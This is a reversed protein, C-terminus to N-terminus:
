VQKGCRQRPSQPRSTSGKFKAHRGAHAFPQRTAMPGSDGNAGARWSPRSASREGDPADSAEARDMRRELERIFDLM